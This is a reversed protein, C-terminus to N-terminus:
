AGGPARTETTEHQQTPKFGVSDGGTGYGTEPRGTRTNGDGCGVIAAVLLALLTAVLGRRFSANNVANLGEEL